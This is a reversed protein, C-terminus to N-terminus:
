LGQAIHRRNQSDAARKVRRLLMFAVEPTKLAFGLIRGAIRRVNRGRVGLSGLDIGVALGSMTFSVLEAKLSNGITSTSRHSIAPQAVGGASEEAATQGRM